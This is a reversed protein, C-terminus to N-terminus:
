KSLASAFQSEKGEEQTSKSSFDRLLSYSPSFATNLFLMLSSHTDMLSLSSAQKGGSEFCNKFLTRSITHHKPKMADDRSFSQNSLQTPTTEARAQGDSEEGKGNEDPGPQPPIIPFKVALQTASFASHLSAFLRLAFSVGAISRLRLITIFPTPSSLSSPTDPSFIDSFPGMLEYLASPPLDYPAFLQEFPPPSSPASNSPPAIKGDETPSSSLDLLSKLAPFPTLLSLDAFTILFDGV